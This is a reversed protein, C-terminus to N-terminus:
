VGPFFSPRLLSFFGHQSSFGFTYSHTFLNRSYTHWLRSCRGAEREAPQACPCDWAPLLMESSLQAWARGELPTAPETEWASSQWLQESRSSHRGVRCIDRCVGGSPIVLPSFLVRGHHLKQQDTDSFTFDWHGPLNQGALQGQSLSCLPSLHWLWHSSVSIGLFGVPVCLSSHESLLGTLLYAIAWPVWQINESLMWIIWLNGTNM